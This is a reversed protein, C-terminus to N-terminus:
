ESFTHHIKSEVDETHYEVDNSDIEQDEMVLSCDFSDFKIINTQQPQKRM